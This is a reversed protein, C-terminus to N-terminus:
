WHRECNYKCGQICQQRCCKCLYTVKASSHGSLFNRHALDEFFSPLYNTSIHCDSMVNKDKDMWKNNDNKKRDKRMKKRRRTRRRAKPIRRFKKIGKKWVNVFACFRRVVTTHMKDADISRTSEPTCVVVTSFATLTFSWQAMNEYINRVNFFFFISYYGTCNVRRGRVINFSFSAIRFFPDPKTLFSSPM